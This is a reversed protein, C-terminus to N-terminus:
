GLPPVGFLAAHLYFVFLLYLGLGLIIAIADNAWGARAMALPPQAQRRKVSIRDIVAWALFSGFLLIDALTGNALLHAVAWLKVGALMPHKLTSRIRGPLYAAAFLVFVPVMLLVALHRTWLPPHWIVIPDFRALGYGWVILLLGAFAAVSYVGKWLAEGHAAIQRDRFDPAVIRVSHVGLFVILGLILILM